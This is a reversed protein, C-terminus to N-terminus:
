NGHSVEELLAKGKVLFYIEVILDRTLQAIFLGAAVCGMVWFHYMPPAWESLRRYDFEISEEFKGFCMQVILILFFIGLLYSVVNFLSRVQHSVQLYLIDVNIHAKKQQAYAGGLAAIYGFLFLSMDFAWITPKNLVYRSFVEFAVTVTMVPILLAATKGTMKVIFDIARCITRLIESFM